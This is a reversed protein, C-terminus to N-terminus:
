EACYKEKMKNIMSSKMLKSICQPVPFEFCISLKVEFCISFKVTQETRKKTPM